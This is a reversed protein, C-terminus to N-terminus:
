APHAQAQIAADVLLAIDSITAVPPTREDPLAISFTDELDFMFEIAALSDIGLDELSQEPRLRELPLDFQSSLMTQIRSLTDLRPEERRIMMSAVV